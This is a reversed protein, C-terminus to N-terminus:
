MNGEITKIEHRPFFKKITEHHKPRVYESKGGAIFLTPGESNGKAVGRNVEM